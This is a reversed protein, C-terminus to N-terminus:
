KKLTLKMLQYEQIQHPDEIESLEREIVRQDGVLCIGVGFQRAGLVAGRVIEAPAYDGGMADIAIKMTTGDRTPLSTNAAM